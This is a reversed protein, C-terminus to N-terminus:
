VILRKHKDVLKFVELPRDVKFYGDIAWFVLISKLIHKGNNNLRSLDFWRGTHTPLGFAM